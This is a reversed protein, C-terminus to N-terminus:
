IGNGSCIQSSNAHEESGVSLNIIYYCMSFTDNNTLDHLCASIQLACTAQTIIFFLELQTEFIRRSHNGFICWCWCYMHSCVNYMFSFDDIM